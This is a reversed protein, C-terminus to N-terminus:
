KEGLTIGIHNRLETTRLEVWDTLAAQKDKMASLKAGLDALYQQQLENFDIASGSALAEFAEKSAERLPELADAPTKAKRLEAAEKSAMRSAVFAVMPSLNRTEVKAAPPEIKAAPLQKPADIVIAARQSQDPQAAPLKEPQPDDVDPALTSLWSDTDFRIFVNGLESEFLLKSELEEEILKYYHRLCNDYFARNALAPNNYNMGSTMFGLLTPPINFFRCVDEASMKKQNILDLVQQSNNPTDIQYNPPVVLPKGKKAEQLSTILADIAPKDLKAPPRVIMSPNSGYAIAEAEANRAAAAMGVSERAYIRPDHGTLAGVGMGSLHIVDLTSFQQKSSEKTAYYYNRNQDQRAMLSDPPAVVISNITAIDGRNIVGYANGYNNLIHVLQRKFKYPTQWDNPRHQLLRALRHGKIETYGDDDNGEVIVIPTSAVSNSIIRDCGHWAALSQFTDYNVNVNAVSRRGFLEWRSINEGDPVYSVNSRKFFNLLGM